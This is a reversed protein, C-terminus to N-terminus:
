LAFFSFFPEVQKSGGLTGGHQNYTGTRGSVESASTSLGKRAESPFISWLQFSSCICAYRAQSRLRIESQRKVGGFHLSLRFYTQTRLSSYGVRFEKKKKGFKM